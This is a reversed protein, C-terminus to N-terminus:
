GPARMSHHVPRALATIELMNGDPDMFYTMRGPFIGEARTEEHVVEVGHAKLHAVSADYTSPDVLFAHHVTQEKRFPQGNRESAGLVLFDDGARLFVMGHDPLSRVLDLGLIRTYFDESRALDTVPITFHVVGLPKIM